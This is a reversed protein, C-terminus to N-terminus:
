KIDIIIQIFLELWYHWCRNAIITVTKTKIQNLRYVIFEFSAVKLGGKEERKIVVSEKNNKWVFAYM